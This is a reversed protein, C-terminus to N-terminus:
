RSTGAAAASPRLNLGVIVPDHDSYRYPTDANIALQAPSKNEINYDYFVPEDSNAHWTAAGAVQEVVSPSGFAYDLHGFEGRFSYSYGTSGESKETLNLFGAREIVAIPDEKAYSNLDGLILVDPDRSQTPDTKLWAVLAKAQRTRLFNSHGQGDNQDLNPNPNRGETAVPGASPSGKSKFHNICITLVAGTTKERFTQAVPSRALGVFEPANLAAAAGVPEVTDTRYILGNTIADSTLDIGATNVFAYRRGAPSGANMTAVLQVIASGQEFGDNEVETLGMIDPAMAHIAAVIKAQQRVYELQTTAGRPTPFGGGQGDGNFLNLVNGTAVRLRGSIVPPAARPNADVFALDSTPEIMYSGFREDMIGAIGTVTSGARRTVGRRASDAVFASPDRYPAGIADDIVIQRLDNAEAQARAPAGPAVMNTPAFLRGLSLVLQGHRGLNFTESVTLTQPLVVRMGEYQEAAGSNAFPLSLKVPAPLKANGLVSLQKVNGLQTQTRAGNGVEAVTGTLRVSQGVKVPFSQNAVFLGESSKVDADAAADPTQVYFGGLGTADQFVATVVGEVEVRLAVLASTTGNGQVQHIARRLAPATPAPPPSSPPPPVQASAPLFGVVSIGLSLSLAALCSPLRM